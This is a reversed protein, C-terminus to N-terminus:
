KCDPICLYDRFICVKGPDAKTLTNCYIMSVALKVFLANLTIFMAWQQADKDRGLFMRGANTAFVQLLIVFCEIKLSLIIM